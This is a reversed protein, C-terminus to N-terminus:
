KPISSNYINRLLMGAQTAQMNWASLAARYALKNAKITKFDTLREGILRPKIKGKTNNEIVLM